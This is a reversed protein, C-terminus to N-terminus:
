ARRRRRRRMSASCSGAPARSTQASSQPRGSASGGSRAFSSASTTAQSGPVSPAPTASAGAARLELAAQRKRPRAVIRLRTPLRSFVRQKAPTQHHRTILSSKLSVLRLLPQPARRRPLAFPPRALADASQRMSNSQPAPPSMPSRPRQTALLPRPAGLRPPRRRVRRTPLSSSATSTASRTRAEDFLRQRRAADGLPLLRLPPRARLAHLRRRQPRAREVDHEVVLPQPAPACTTVRDPRKPAAGRRPADWPRPTNSKFGLSYRVPSASRPAWRKSPQGYLSSISDLEGRADYGRPRSRPGLLTGVGSRSPSRPSAAPTPRRISGHRNNCQAVACRAETEERRAASTRARRRPAIEVVLKGRRARRSRSLSSPSAARLRLELLALVPRWQAIWTSVTSAHHRRIYTWKLSSRLEVETDVLHRRQRWRLGLSCSAAPKWRRLPSGRPTAELGVAAEPRPAAAAGAIAAAPRGPLQGFHGGGNQM